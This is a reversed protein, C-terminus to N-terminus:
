NMRKIYNLAGELIFASALSDIEKKKNHGTKRSKPNYKNPIVKPSKTM